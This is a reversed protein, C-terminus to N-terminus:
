FRSFAAELAQGYVSREENGQLERIRLPGNKKLHNRYERDRYLEEIAEAIADSSRAPIVHANERHQVLESAGCHDSIVVPVGCAMAELAAMGFGDDISPLILMDCRLYFNAIYDVYKVIEVDKRSIFSGFAKEKGIESSRIALSGNPLNLKSWAEFLYAFGKRITHGGLMGVRFVGDNLRYNSVDSINVARGLIPAIAVKSKLYEPFTNASYRSPCVILEAAEYEAEQRAVFWDPHPSNALGFREGEEALLEQQFRVHPCARDLVFRSGREIAAQGSALSSAAVGVFIDPPRRKILSAVYHDYMVSDIADRRIGFGLGFAANLQAFPLPALTHRLDAANGFFRRPAGSVVEVAAGQAMLEKATLAFQLTRKPALIFSKHM